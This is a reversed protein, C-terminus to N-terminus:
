SRNIYPPDDPGKHNPSGGLCKSADITGASCIKPRGDDVDQHKRPQKEDRGTPAVSHILQQSWTKPAQSEQSGTTECLIFLLFSPPQWSSSQRNICGSVRAKQSGMKASPRVLCHPYLSVRKQFIVACM